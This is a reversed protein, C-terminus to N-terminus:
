SVAKVAPRQSNVAVVTGDCEERNVALSHKVLRATSRVVERAKLRAYVHEHNVSWAAAAAVLELEASICLCVACVTQGLIPFPRHWETDAREKSNRLTGRPPPRGRGGAASGIVQLGRILIDIM